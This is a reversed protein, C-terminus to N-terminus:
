CMDLPLVINTSAELNEIKSQTRKNTLFKLQLRSKGREQVNRLEVEQIEKSDVNLQKAISEGVVSASLNCNPPLTNDFLMTIEICIRLEELIQPRTTNKPREEYITITKVLGREGKEGKPGPTGTDGKIGAEGVSGASQAHDFHKNTQKKRGM